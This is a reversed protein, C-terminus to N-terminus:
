VVERYVDPHPKTIVAANVLMGAQFIGGRRRVDARSVTEPVLHIRSPVGISCTLRIM